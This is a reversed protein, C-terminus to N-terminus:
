RLRGGRATLAQSGGGAGGLAWQLVRFAAAAWQSATENQKAKQNM